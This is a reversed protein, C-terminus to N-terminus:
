EQQLKYFQNKATANMDIYTDSGSFNATSDLLSWNVLDHSVYINVLRNPISNMTFQFQGPGVFSGNTIMPAPNPILRVNTVYSANYGTGAWAGIGIDHGVPAPNDSTSFSTIYDGWPSSAPVTGTSSNLEAWSAYNNTGGTADWVYLKYYQAGDNPGIAWIVEYLTNPAFQYGTDEYVTEYYLISCCTGYTSFPDTVALTYSGSWNLFSPVGAEDGFFPNLVMGPTVNLNIPPTNTYGFGNTASLVYNGAQVMQVDTLSYTANTANPLVNGNLRWQYTIPPSGSVVPNLTYQGHVPRTASAPLSTFLPPVAPNVTLTVVSSTISGFSNSIVCQYMGSDTTAPSSLNYVSNTATPDSVLSNKLWQYKLTPAGGAVVSFTVPTGAFVTNAPTLTTDVPLTPTTLQFLTYGFVSSIGFYYYNYDAYFDIQAPDAGATFTYSVSTLNTQGNYVYYFQSDAGGNTSTSFSFSGNYFGNWNDGLIVQAQYSQGPTLNVLDITLNGTWNAWTAFNSYLIMGNPDAGPYYGPWSPDPQQTENPDWGNPSSAFSATGGVSYTTNVQNTTFTIGNVTAPAIVGNTTISFDINSTLSGVPPGLNVAEILIGNTQWGTIPDVGNSILAVQAMAEGNLLALVALMAFAIQSLRFPVPQILHCRIFSALLTNTSKPNM